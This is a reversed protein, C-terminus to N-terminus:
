NRSTLAPAAPAPAEQEAAEEAEEAVEEADTEAVPAEVVPAADTPQGPIGEPSVGEAALEGEVKLTEPSPEGEAAANAADDTVPATETAPAEVAPAAETAPAEAPVPEVPAVEAPAAESAPTEVPAGSGDPTGPTNNEAPPAEAAKAAEQDEPTLITTESVGVYISNQPVSAGDYFHGSISGTINFDGSAVEEALAAFAAKAKAFAEQGAEATIPPSPELGDLRARIAEADPKTAPFQSSFSM